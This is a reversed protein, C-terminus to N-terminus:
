QVDSRVRLIASGQAAVSGPGTEIGHEAARRLFGSRDLRDDLIVMFNQWNHEPHAEPLRLGYCNKLRELYFRALQRRRALIGPFKQM